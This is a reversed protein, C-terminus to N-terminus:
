KGKKTLDYFTRKLQMEYFEEITDNKLVVVTESLIKRMVRFVSRKAEFHSNLEPMKELILMYMKQIEILIEELVAITQMFTQELQELQLLLPVNESM